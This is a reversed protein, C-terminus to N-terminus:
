YPVGHVTSGGCYIFHVLIICVLQAVTEPGWGMPGGRLKAASLSLGNRIIYKAVGAEEVEIVLM